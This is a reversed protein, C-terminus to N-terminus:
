EAQDGRPHDFNRCLCHSRLSCTACLLCASLIVGIPYFFELVTRQISISNWGLMSLCYLHRRTLMTPVTWAAVTPATRECWLKKTPGILTSPEPVYPRKGTCM